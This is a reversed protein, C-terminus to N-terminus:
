NQPKTKPIEKERPPSSIIPVVAKELEIQTKRKSFGGAASEGWAEKSYHIFLEYNEMKEKAAESSDIEAPMLPYIREYDGLNNLEFKDKIRLRKLRLQEREEVSARPQGTLRKHM